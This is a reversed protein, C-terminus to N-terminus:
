KSRAPKEGYGLLQVENSFRVVKWIPNTFNDIYPYPFMRIFTCLARGIKGRVGPAWTFPLYYFNESVINDFGYSVLISRISQKMWPIGYGHTHDIYHIRWMYYWDSTLIVAKGGPKLVRHIESVLHDGNVHEIASKCWIVDFTEDDFPLPDSRMDAIRLRGHKEPFVAGAADSMDVCWTELGLRSLAEAHEGRGCMIDLVKGKLQLREVLHRVLKFPFDNLPKFDTAYEVELM